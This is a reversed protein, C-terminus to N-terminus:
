ARSSARSIIPQELSSGVLSTYLTGYPDILPFIYMKSMSHSYSILNSCVKNFSENRELGHYGFRLLWCSPTIQGILPRKSPNLFSGKNTMKDSTLSRYVLNAFKFYWPMVTRSCFQWTNITARPYKHLGPCAERRSFVVSFFLGM